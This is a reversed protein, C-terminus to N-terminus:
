LNLDYNFQVKDISYALGFFPFTTGEIVAVFEEEPRFKDKDYTAVAYFVKSLTKERNFDQIQVNRDINSFV